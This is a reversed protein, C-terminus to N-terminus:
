VLKVGQFDLILGSILSYCTRLHEQVLNSNKKKWFHVLPLCIVGSFWLTFICFLNWFCRQMASPWSFVSKQICIKKQSLVKKSRKKVNYSWIAGMVGIKFFSIGLSPTLSVRFSTMWQNKIKLFYIQDLVGVIYVLWDDIKDCSRL